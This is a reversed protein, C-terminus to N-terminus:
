YNWSGWKPSCRESLGTPTATLVSLGSSVFVSFLQGTWRRFEKQAFSRLTPLCGALIVARQKSPKVYNVSLLLKHRSAFIPKLFFWSELLHRLRIGVHLILVHVWSRREGGSMGTSFDHTSAAAEKDTPGDGRQGKDHKFDGALIM